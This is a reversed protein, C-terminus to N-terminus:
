RKLQGRTSRDERGLLSVREARVRKCGILLVDLEHGLQDALQLPASVQRLLERVWTLGRSM